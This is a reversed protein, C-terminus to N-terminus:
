VKLSLGTTHHPASAWPSDLKVACGEKTGSAWPCASALLLFNLQTALVLYVLPIGDM